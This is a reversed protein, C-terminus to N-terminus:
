FRNGKVAAWRTAIKGAPSVAMETAMSLLIEDQELARLWLRVEDVAGRYVQYSKGAGKDVRDWGGIITKGTAALYRGASVDTAFEEGDLYIRRELTSEDMWFTLNHWTDKQLLGDPTDLDNGYFGLRAKGTSHIRLHLSLNEANSEYQSFVVEQDTSLGTKVWFQVTFDRGDLPIHPAVVWTDGDFQFGGGVKGEIWDAKGDVEADNGQGSWDKVTNGAGEDFTLALVLDKLVDQADLPQLLTGMLLFCVLWLYTLTNRIGRM